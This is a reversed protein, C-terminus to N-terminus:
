RERLAPRAGSRAAAPGRARRIRERASAAAPVPLVATAAGELVLSLVAHQARLSEQFRLATM